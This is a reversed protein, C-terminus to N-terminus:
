WIVRTLFRFEVCRTSPMSLWKPRDPARDEALYSRFAHCSALAERKGEMGVCYIHTSLFPSVLSSYVSNRPLTILTDIPWLQRAIVLRPQSSGQYEGLNALPSQVYSKAPTMLSPGQMSYPEILDHRAHTYFGRNQRRPEHFSHTPFLCETADRPWYVQRIRDPIAHWTRLLSDGM